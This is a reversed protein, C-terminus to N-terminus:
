FVVPSPSPSRARTSDTLVGTSRCAPCNNKGTQLWTDVCARHFAHRCRMVRIEEEEEKEEKYDELCILCQIFFLILLTNKKRRRRGRIMCPSLSFFEFFFVYGRQVIRLYRRAKKM